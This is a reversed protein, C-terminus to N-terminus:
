QEYQDSGHQGEWTKCIMAATPLKFCFFHSPMLSTQRIIFYLSIAHTIVVLFECGLVSWCTFFKIDHWVTVRICFTLVADNCEEGRSDCKHTLFYKLPFLVFSINVALEFFFLM